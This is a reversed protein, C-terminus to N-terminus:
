LFEKIFEKFKTYNTEKKIQNLFSNCIYLVPCTLSKNGHKTTHNRNDKLSLPAQTYFTTEHFMNETNNLM